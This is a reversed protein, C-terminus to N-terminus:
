SSSLAVQEIDTYTPGGRGLVSEVLSIGEVPLPTGSSGLESDAAAALDGLADTLASRQARKRAHAITIHPSFKKRDPEFGLATLEQSLAAHIDGLPGDKGDVGVWFVRPKRPSPFCGGGRVTTVFSPVPALSRRLAASLQPLLTDETDGLFHLTLHLNKPDVVRVSSTHPSLSDQIGAIRARLSDTLHVAIFLRKTSM